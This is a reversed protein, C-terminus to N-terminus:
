LPKLEKQVTRWKLLGCTRWTRVARWKVLGVRWQLLGVRWQLLGVRWQLLGVFDGSLFMTNRSTKVVSHVVSWDSNSTM